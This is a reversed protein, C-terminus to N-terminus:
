MRELVPIGLLDLGSGIVNRVLEVLLAKCERAGPDPERIVTDKQYWSNFMDALRLLYVALQEPALDDAAKAATLPFRLAEILLRRRDPDNCSGPRIAEYNVPGHKRLISSARAYTYQLYPGSNESLDLAKEVSFVIPKPASTQIMKFRIAGIAIKEATDNIWKDPKDPNRKKVEIWATAKLEELINDLTIIRGRRSSLKKGPLTVLEYDYHVLNVAERVYGIAALALRLQLQALRQDAGIVNYVKDASWAEFKYITYAMDRTTYLTTGDSRRLILPPIEFGRPLKFYKRLDPDRSLVEKVFRPIDIAEAGKYWTFYKSKKAEEILRGVRSSWVLDSEWDWADFSVNMRDLTAQIGVLATEAVRRVLGKEPEEGREYRVMLESIEKEPDEVRGIHELLRDFYERPGKEELDKLVLLLDDLKDRLSKDGSEEIEKKLMKVDVLTHTVAYIWGIFEDPKIGRKEAEELPDIGLIRVGYAAVAVQKGVDDVYFRTNVLHGRARLLRSLTDGITANRAHGMHMPHIPNASTHEVVLRQPNETKPLELRQYEKLMNAVHKIAREALIKINIYAGARSVEAYDIGEEELKDTIAQILEDVTAAGRKEYRVAPFSLDGLEERPPKGILYFIKQKDEGVKEAIASTVAEVLRTYPDKAMALETDGNYQKFGDLMFADHNINNSVRPPM